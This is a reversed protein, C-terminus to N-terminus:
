GSAAWFFLLLSVIGVASTPSALRTIAAEVSSSGEETFPLAGVIRDIVEDRRAENQLVVGVISVIVISLPALSFLVRYAIGAAYQTLRDHFYGDIAMPLARAVNRLIDLPWRALRSLVGPRDSAAHEAM